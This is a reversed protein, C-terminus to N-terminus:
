SWQWLCPWTRPTSHRSQLWAVDNMSACTSMPLPRNGCRHAGSRGANRARQAHQGCHAAAPGHSGHSVCVSCRSAETSPAQCFCCPPILVVRSFGEDLAARLGGGVDGSGQGTCRDDDVPGHFANGNRSEGVPIPPAAGARTPGAYRPYRVM